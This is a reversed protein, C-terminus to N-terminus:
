LVGNKFERLVNEFGNMPPSDDSEIEDYFNKSDNILNQCKRVASRHKIKFKEVVEHSYKKTRQETINYNAFEKNITLTALMYNKIAQNRIEYYEIDEIKKVFLHTKHSSIEEDSLQYDLYKDPFIRAGSGYLQNLEQCKNTFQDYTIEWGNNIIISPSIIFGLFADIVIQQMLTPVHKLYSEKLRQGYDEYQLTEAAIYFKGLVNSLKTQRANDLVYQQCESIEKNSKSYNFSIDELIKAKEQINLDNWSKLKSNETIRQTTFLILSRYSAPEFEERMWNCLTKWFELCNDSLNASVYKVETQSYNSVTVDGYKEIWLKQGKTLQFCNELAVYLQYFIGTVSKTANNRVSKISNEMGKRVCCQM